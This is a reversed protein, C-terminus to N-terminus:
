FSYDCQKSVEVSKEIRWKEIYMGGRAAVSARKTFRLLQFSSPLQRTRWDKKFSQLLVDRLITARKNLEASSQIAHSTFFDDNDGDNRKKVSIQGSQFVLMEQIMACLDGVFYTPGREVCVIIILFQTSKWVKSTKRQRSSNQIKACRKNKVHLVKIETMKKTNDWLPMPM